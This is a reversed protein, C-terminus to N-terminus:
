RDFGGPGVGSCTFAATRASAVGSRSLRAPAPETDIVFLTTGCTVAAAAPSPPKVATGQLRLPPVPSGCQCVWSAEIHDPGDHSATVQDATVHLATVQLLEFHDATEQLATLQDATEQLATVQDATDQDATVHPANM